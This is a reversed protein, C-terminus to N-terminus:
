PWYYLRNERYYNLTKLLGECLPTYPEWGLQSRIKSYDGYYDGIDIREMEMPFPEMHYTGSGNVEALMQALALLSVPAGGLNYVQGEAQPNAACVLLAAVVDDVFNLDRLQRGDGYLIMEQGDIIQRIWLGLFTKHSDRVRMRPGYVNTMRLSTTRMGYVRHCVLHYWEGAMKSIGNFDLPELSHMEDVPLYHPRGYMQRTGAYVIRVAPNWKRCMELLKIQSVANMELDVMPDGMSGAHSVQAALNFLFDQAPLILELKGEDCMDGIFVQIQGKIEQINFPNGGFEPSLSDIITIYAGLELLRRALNSGIFGVGGTILVHKGQFIGEFDSGPM